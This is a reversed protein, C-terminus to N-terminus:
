STFEVLSSGSFTERWLQPHNGKSDLKCTKGGCSDCIYHLNSFPSLTSRQGPSSAPLHLWRKAMSHFSSSFFFIGVDKEICGCQWRSARHPPVAPTTFWAAATWSGAVEWCWPRVEAGRMKGPLSCDANLRCETLMKGDSSLLSMIEWPQVVQLIHEAKKILLCLFPFVQKCQGGDAHSNFM